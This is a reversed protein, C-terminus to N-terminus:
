SRGEANIHLEGVGLFLPKTTLTAEQAGANRSCFGDIRLCSLGIAGVIGRPDTTNKLTSRGGFYVLLKDDRVFIPGNHPNRRAWDWAPPESWLMFPQREPDRAWNEGDYSWALQTIERGTPHEYVEVCGILIGEYEFVPMSYLDSQPPDRDDKQFILRMPAM